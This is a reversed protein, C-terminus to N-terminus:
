SRDRHDTCYLIRHVCCLPVNSFWNFLLDVTCHYKGRLTGQSPVAWIIQNALKPLTKLRFFVINHPPRFGTPWYFTQASDLTHFGFTEVYHHESSPAKYMQSATQLVHSTIDGETKPDQHASFILREALNFRRLPLRQFSDSCLSRILLWHKLLFECLLHNKTCSYMKVQSWHQLVEM